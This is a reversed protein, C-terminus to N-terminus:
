KMTIAEQEDISIFRVDNFQRFNTLHHSTLVDLQQLLDHYGKDGYFFFHFSKNIENKLYTNHMGYHNGDQCSNRILQKFYTHDTQGLSHGFFIFKKCNSFLNTFNLAKYYRPYAKRLFVHEPKIPADDEVGFIINNKSAEGHVKTIIKNIEESSLLKKHLIYEISKTYNFDLIVFKNSHESVTDILNYGVSSKKISSYDVNNIYNILQFCLMRFNEQYKNDTEELSYQKLENEIDVWNQLDHKNKLYEALQNGRSLLDEFQHSQIFNTYSTPLGLNIDFGNGIIITTISDEM